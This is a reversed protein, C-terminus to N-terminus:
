LEMSKQNEKAKKYMEDFKGNAVVQDINTKLATMADKRDSYEIQTIEKAFSLLEIDNLFNLELVLCRKFFPNLTSSIASWNMNNTIVNKNADM